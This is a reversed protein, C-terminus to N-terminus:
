CSCCQRTRTQVEAQLRTINTVITQDHAEDAMVMASWLDIIGDVLVGVQLSM